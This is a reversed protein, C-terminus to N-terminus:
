RLEIKELSGWRTGMEIDVELPVHETCWPYSVMADRAALASDRWTKEPCLLMISDHVPLVVEADLQGADVLDVLKAISAICFESATGQIPTNIAGNKARSAAFAGEESDDGINVLPRWRAREGEWHTWCGGKERAYAIVERCWQGYKVFKGFIARRIQAAREEDISLEAALSRDTKGYAIGFNFAKAGTRHVKTCQEPKIGWALECILQATGMHFDVGSRFLDAMVVDGSLLSAIRLELQSYDLQVLVFGPPATFCDRARKGDESDAARPINQLNPNSCSTRGSRAGDLHISPHIRGDPRLCRAWDAAYGVLKQYHRYELIYGPLPHQSRLQMLAEEDTSPAGSETQFASHLGLKDFLVKALQQPSGPNLEKTGPLAYHQVKDWAAQQGELMLNAFLQGAQQDFPVGWEEVRQIAIAAPLVIKDWIRQREPARHLRVGFLSALRATSYADRAVYRSRTAPKLFAYAIARPEEAYKEMNFGQRVATDLDDSFPMSLQRSERRKKVKAATEKIRKEIESLATEAEAKHGGMGVLEAMDELNAPADPELLKRQLRTDFSIGRVRMRKGCWLAHQDAKVNSGGKPVEPDELLARIPEWLSADNLAEEDWVWVTQRGVPSAALALLRFDPDWLYGAWELDFAFGDGRLLDECAAQADASTTVMTAFFGPELHRPPPVKATLAWKLDRELYKALFRNRHTVGPSMLFFVPIPAGDNWLWTYGRRFNLPSLSRGTMSYIANWGLALIRDPKVAAITNALYPRCASIHEDLIEVRKDGRGEFCRTAVDLAIDGEWHQRLFPRLKTGDRGRFIRGEADDFATPGDGVVLVTPAGEKGKGLEGQLAGGKRSTCLQCRRCAPDLQRPEVEVALKPPEPYLPLTKPQM